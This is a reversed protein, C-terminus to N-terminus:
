KIFVPAFKMLCFMRLRNKIVAKSHADNIAIKIMIIVFNDGFWKRLRNLSLRRLFPTTFFGKGLLSMGEESQCLYKNLLYLQVEYINILMNM